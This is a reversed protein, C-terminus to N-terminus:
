SNRKVELNINDLCIENRYRAIGRQIKVFAPYVSLNQDPSPFRASYRKKIYWMPDLPTPDGVITEEILM